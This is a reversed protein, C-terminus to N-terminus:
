LCWVDCAVDFQAIQLMCYAACQVNRLASLIDLQPLLPLCNANSLCWKFKEIMRLGFECVNWRNM